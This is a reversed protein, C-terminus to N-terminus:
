LVVETQTSQTTSGRKFGVPHGSDVEVTEHKISKKLIQVSTYIQEKRQGCSLSYNKNGIVNNRFFFSLGRQNWQGLM